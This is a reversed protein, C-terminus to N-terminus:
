VNLPAGLLEPVSFHLCKNVWRLRIEMGIRLGKARIIKGWKGILNYYSGRWRLKMLYFNGTDDDQGNVDMQRANRLEERDQPTWYFLIYDEVAKGPLTLFPHTTDVDSLTLAKKIPWNDVMSSRTASCHEQPVSFCLCDDAWCIRIEDGVGLGKQRIVAGWKGVLNYSNGKPKIKMQYVEGTDYDRANVIAQEENKLQEQQQPTWHVLIHDKVQQRPLPLFPHNIDVDSLTLVKKIPWPNGVVPPPRVVMQVPMVMMALQRLPVSFHLIGNDWRIKVEHGVGLGKTRVVKGWKGILNYYSGRWKLKMSYVEGTDDDQGNFDVHGQSRLMEQQQPDMHVVIHNEVQQRSLTLFPHTIDVDSLTLAKKIPWQEGVVEPVDNYCMTRRM